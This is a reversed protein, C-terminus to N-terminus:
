PVKWAVIIGLSAGGTLAARAPGPANPGSCVGLERAAPLVVSLSEHHLPNKHLRAMKKPPPFTLEGCRM